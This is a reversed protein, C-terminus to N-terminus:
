CLRKKNGHNWKPIESYSLSPDNFSFPQLPLMWGDPNSIHPLNMPYIISKSAINPKTSHSKISTFNNVSLSNHIFTEVATDKYESISLTIIEGVEYDYLPVTFSGDSNSEIRFFHKSKKSDTSHLGEIRSCADALLDLGHM